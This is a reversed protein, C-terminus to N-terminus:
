GGTSTKAAAIEAPDFDAVSDLVYTPRYPFQEITTAPRSARLAGPLDADRGGARRRRRHGDPRRDDRLGGGARRADRRAYIMMLSNPKGVIYPRRGTAAEVAALLVGAAPETGGEVPDVMDPNTGIFKAGADILQAAKRLMPFAFSATKGVM